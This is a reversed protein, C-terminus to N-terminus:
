QRKKQGSNWKCTFYGCASLQCPETDHKCSMSSGAAYSYRLFLMPSCKWIEFINPFESSVNSLVKRPHICNRQCSTYLCKEGVFNTKISSGEWESPTKVETGNPSNSKWSCIIKRYKSYDCIVVHMEKKSSESVHSM